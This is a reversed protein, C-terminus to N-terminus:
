CRRWCGGGGAAARWRPAAEVTQGQGLHSASDIAWSGRKTKGMERDNGHGPEGAVSGASRRSGGGRGERNLILPSLFFIAIKSPAGQKEKGEV